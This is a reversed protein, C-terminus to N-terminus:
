AMGGKIKMGKPNEPSVKLSFKDAATDLAM